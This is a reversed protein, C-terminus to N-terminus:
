RYVGTEWGEVSGDPMLDGVIMGASPYGMDDGDVYEGVGDGSVYEGVTPVVMYGEDGSVYEALGPVKGATMKAAVARMLQYATVTIAGVAVQDAVRKSAVKSAVFGLGIAAAVRVVPAMPGTKMQVPLPLMGMLVDIGVASAGGVAAPILTGGIFDGGIPNKRRYRLKRGAVSAEAASTIRHTRRKPKAPAAVARSSSRKPKARSVSKKGGARAKNMAVLKKTAAIQARSRKAKAMTKGKRQAKRAKSPREAPNVILVHPM